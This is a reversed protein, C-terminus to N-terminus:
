SGGNIMRSVIGKHKKGLEAFIVGGIHIVIYSIIVWMFISHINKAASRLPKWEPMGDSYAMFLGTCAQVFLSFYFFIYLSKVLLYHKAEKKNTGPM